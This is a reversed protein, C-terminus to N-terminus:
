QTYFNSNVTVDTTSVGSDEFPTSILNSAPAPSAAARLAQTQAAVVKGASMPRGCPGCVAGGSMTMGTVGSIVSLNCHCEEAMAMAPMAYSLGLLTTAFAAILSHKM